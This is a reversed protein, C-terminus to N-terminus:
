GVPHWIVLMISRESKVVDGDRWQGYGDIVTLGDPFLPTVQRDLLTKWEVDTVSTGDPKGGGFLLERRTMATASTPCTAGGAPPSTLDAFALGSVLGISLTAFAAIQAPRM